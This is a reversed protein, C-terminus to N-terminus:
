KLIAKIKKAEAADWAWGADPKEVKGRLTKRADRPEIKLEECIEALTVLGDRSVPAAGAPRRTTNKRVRTEEVEEAATKITELGAAILVQNLDPQPIQWDVDDMDLLGDVDGELKFMLQEDDSIYWGAEAAEEYDRGNLAVEIYRKAAWRACLCHIQLRQHDDGYKFWINITPNKYPSSPYPNDNVSPRHKNLSRAKRVM